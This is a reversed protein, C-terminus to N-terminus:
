RRLGAPFLCVAQWTGPTAAATRIAKRKSRRGSGDSLFLAWQKAAHSRSADHIDQKSPPPFRFRGLTALNRRLYGRPALILGSGRGYVARRVRRTYSRRTLAGINYIYIYVCLLTREESVRVEVKHTHRHQESTGRSSETSTM